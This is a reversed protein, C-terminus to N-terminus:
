EAAAYAGYRSTGLLTFSRVTEDLPIYRSDAPPCKTVKHTKLWVDIAQQDEKSIKDSM